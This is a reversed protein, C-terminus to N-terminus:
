LLNKLYEIVNDEPYDKVSNNMYLGNITLVDETISYDFERMLFVGSNCVNHLQDFQFLSKPNRMDLHYIGMNIITENIEESSFSSMTLTDRKMHIGAYMNKYCNMIRGDSHHYHMMLNRLKHIECYEPSMIVIPKNGTHTAFLKNNSNIFYYTSM